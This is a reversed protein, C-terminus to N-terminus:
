HSIPKPGFIRELCCLFAPLSIIAATVCTIEGLVALQGFSVFAQNGAILLSSYGIITTMSSLIVAGGTNRIVALIKGPGETRYRQFINVGYDVGIGFTIPLAIFNLFNIKLKFGVIIGAMWVVGLGLSILVLGITKFNRFLVVILIVVAAFALLTAKPGDITIADFMDVSIPLDGAVPANPAVSDTIKRGMSVFRTIDRADDKGKEILKDVLVIKGLTGDTERFKGLVM